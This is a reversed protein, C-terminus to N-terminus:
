PGSAIIGTRLETDLRSGPDTSVFNYVLLRSNRIAFNSIGPLFRLRSIRLEFNAMRFEKHCSVLFADLLSYFLVDDDLFGIVKRHPLFDIEKLGGVLRFQRNHELSRRAAALRPEYLIHCVVEAPRQHSHGTM